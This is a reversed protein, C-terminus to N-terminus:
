IDVESHFGLQPSSARPPFYMDPIRSNHPGSSFLNSNIGTRLDRLLDAKEKHVSQYLSCTFLVKDVELSYWCSWRRSIAQCLVYFQYYGDDENCYARSNQCGYNRFQKSTTRPHLHLFLLISDFQSLIPEQQFIKSAQTFLKRSIKQGSKSQFMAWTLIIASSTEYPEPYRM